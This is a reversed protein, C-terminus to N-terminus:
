LPIRSGIIVTRDRPLNFYEAADATLATIAVFLRRRWRPMDSGREATRQDGDAMGIDITSLFYSANELDVTSEFSEDPLAALVGPVDALQMYGVSPLIRLRPLYGLQVAQRAVSFAGTIVAQSAIM